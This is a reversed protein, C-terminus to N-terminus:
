TERVAEPPAAREARAQALAAAFREVIVGAPEVADIGDVSRGAQFYDRYSTGELSANKLQWMSRLSYFMRMWHKAKPHRLLRRAVPGARTGVARVYDTEIVAVPVGSIRETLVIDDARARVIAQKYDSHARCETTAIFRTGVQVAAYGIDLAEVFRREDGIGGACVLPVGLDALSEVLARPDRQGAHGGARRNVCILGDVGADLAKQAWKRETVDHYVVGGARHVADVVWRPNGLATVFFRVGEDLAVDVWKRMRDEYVKSSKEVIANFGIPKSTIQKIERLGARLERKHVYIMSLPQVVGLGGAASVAAVLEPNSCPYMAGCILPVEAGTHRCFATPELPTSV